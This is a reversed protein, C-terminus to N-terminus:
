WEFFKEGIDMLFVALGPLNERYCEDGSLEVGLGGSWGQFIKECAWWVEVDNLLRDRIGM